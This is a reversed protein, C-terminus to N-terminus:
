PNRRSGAEWNDQWCRGVEGSGWRGEGCESCPNREQTSAGTSSWTVAPASLDPVSSVSTTEPIQPCMPTIGADMGLNHGKRPGGCESVGLPTSYGNLRCIM